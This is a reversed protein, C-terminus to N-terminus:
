TYYCNTLSCDRGFASKYKEKIQAPKINETEIIQRVFRVATTVWEVPFGRGAIKFHSVGAKLLQDFACAACFPTKLDDNDVPRIKKGKCFFTMRCGHESNCPDDSELVPLCSKDGSYDDVIFPQYNFTHSFNCFSDIFPCKQFMVIAEFEMPKPANKILQAMESVTMERPLVFRSVNFQEFFRVSQSNFVGAM